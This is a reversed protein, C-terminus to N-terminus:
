RQQFQMDGVKLEFQGAGSGRVIMMMKMSMMTVVYVRRVSSERIASGGERKNEDGPFM